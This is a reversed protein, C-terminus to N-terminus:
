EEEDVRKRRRLGGRRRRRGEEEEADVKRRRSGGGRQRSDEQTRSAAAAPCESDSLEGGRSKNDNDDGRDGESGSDDDDDTRQHQTKPDDPRRPLSSTPPLHQPPKSVTLPPNPNPSFTFFPSRCADYGTQAVCQVTRGSKPDGRTNRGAGLEATSCTHARGCGKPFPLPPHPQPGNARGPTNITSGVDRLLPSPSTTSNRRSTPLTNLHRPPPHHYLFSLPRVLTLRSPTSPPKLSRKARRSLTRYLREDARYYFLFQYWKFLM